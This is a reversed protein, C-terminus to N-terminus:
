KSADRVMPDARITNQVLWEKLKGRIDRIAVPNGVFPAMELEMLRATDTDLIKTTQELRELNRLLAKEEAVAEQDRGARLIPGLQGIAIYIAIAVRRALAIVQFPLYPDHPTFRSLFPNMLAELFYPFKPRMVVHIEFVCLSVLTLWRWYRGVEFYGLFGLGWLGAAAFGYHLFVQFQLGHWVYDKITSCGRWTLIDPGFREYAFRQANNTLVDSATKLHIYFDGANQAGISSSSSSSSSHAVKDPHHQAALRRFRSKIVRDSADHPVNLTAYFNGARQLEWHAEYIIYLLYLIIVLAHIRRRHLQWRHSNEPPHPNGARITLRYFGGQVWSTVMQILSTRTLKQQSSCM